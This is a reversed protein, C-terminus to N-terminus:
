TGSGTVTGQHRDIVEEPKKESDLRALLSRRLELVDFPKTVCPVKNREFFEKTAEGMVDGTMFVVRTAAQPFMEKFSRYLEIGSFGAMKIDLLILQYEAIKLKELAEYADRASDVTRGTGIFAQSILERIAPEDDVM